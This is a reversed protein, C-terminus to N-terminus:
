SQFADESSTAHKTNTIGGQHLHTPPANFSDAESSEEVENDQFAVRSANLTSGNDSTSKILHKKPVPALISADTDLAFDSSLTTSLREVTTARTTLLTEPDNSVSPTIVM